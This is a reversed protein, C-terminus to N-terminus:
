RPRTKTKTAADQRLEEADGLRAGSNAGRDIIKPAVIDVLFALLVGVANAAYDARDYVNRMLRFGNTAEFLEVVALAIGATVQRPFKLHLPLHTLIFYVAFSAAVNGGYNHM